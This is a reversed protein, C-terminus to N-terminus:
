FKVLILVKTRMSDANLVTGGYTNLHLVIIDAEMSDAEAFAKITQRWIGPGINEKIPFVYVLKKQAGVNVFEAFIPLFNFILLVVILFYRM